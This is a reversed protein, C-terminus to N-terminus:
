LKVSVILHLIKVRMKVKKKKELLVFSVSFGVYISNYLTPMKILLYSYSYTNYM